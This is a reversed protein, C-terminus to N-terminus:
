ITNVDSTSYNYLHQSRSLRAQMASQKVRKLVMAINQVCKVLYHLLTNLIYM